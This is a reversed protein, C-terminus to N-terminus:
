RRGRVLALAGGLGLVLATLLVAMASTVTIDGLQEANLIEVALTRTGPGYLLSSMTLEHTAVLAVLIWAGLVAPRVMPVTITRLVTLPSAGSARAAHGAAPPIGDVSGALVRHGLAWLKAVYAGLILLLTDRLRPGLALLAGVALASGPLAFTLAAATGLARGTRARRVVVLAAALVLVITAAALALVFTNVLAEGYHGTLVEGFNALTWNRPHPDLGVARTAATLVLALFPVVTTTGVYIWIGLAAGVNRRGAAIAPGPAASTRVLRQGFAGLGDGVGVVVAALVVLACAMVLVRTFAAPAASLALDRYISTTMTVFGGPLGLVAPVGFANITTVFTVAGAALLAPRLLPLTVTATVAVPSAGSSRAARQLDPEARSALGAAIILYALPVAEVVLVLGVGFAGHLGPLAVGLLDSSLGGVGYARDWSQAVVFPPVVLAFLMALRAARPAPLELRETAVAAATALAVSTPTVVIGLLLTNRLAAGSSPATLVGVVETWGLEAAAIVLEALPWLVLLAVCVAAATGAMM